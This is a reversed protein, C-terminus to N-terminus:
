DDDLSWWPGETILMALVPDGTPNHGSVVHWRQPDASYTQYAIEANFVAGFTGFSRLVETAHSIFMFESMVESM